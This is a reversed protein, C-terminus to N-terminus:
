SELLLSNQVKQYHSLAIPSSNDSHTHEPSQAHPNPPLGSPSKHIRLTGVPTRLHIPMHKNLSIVPKVNHKQKKKFSLSQLVQCLAM